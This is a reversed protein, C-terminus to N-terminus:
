RQITMGATIIATEDDVPATPAVVPNPTVQMAPAAERVPENVVERTEMTITDEVTNERKVEEPKAEEATGDVRKTVQELLGDLKLLESQVDIEEDLTDTATDETDLEDAGPVLDNVAESFDDKFDKFIGDENRRIKNNSVSM